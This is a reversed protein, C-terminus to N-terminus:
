DCDKLAVQSSADKRHDLSVKIQRGLSSSLLKKALKPM